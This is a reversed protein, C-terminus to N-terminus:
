KWCWFLWPSVVEACIRHLLFQSSLRECGYYFNRRTTFDEGNTDEIGINVVFFPPPAMWTVEYLAIQQSLLKISVHPWFELQKTFYWRKYIYYWIESFFSLHHWLLGEYIVCYMSIDIVYFCFITDDKHCWVSVLHSIFTDLTLLLIIGSNAQGEGWGIVFHWDGPPTM